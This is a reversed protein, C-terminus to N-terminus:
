NSKQAVSNTASNVLNTQIASNYKTLDIKGERDSLLYLAVARDVTTRIEPDLGDRYGPIYDLKDVEKTLIREKVKIQRPFYSFDQSNASSAVEGIKVLGSGGPGTMEKTRLRTMMYQQQTKAIAQRIEGPSCIAKVFVDAVSDGPNYMGQIYRSMWMNQIAPDNMYNEDGDCRLDKVRNVVYSKPVGSELREESFKLRSKDAMDLSRILSLTLRNDVPIGTHRGIERADRYEKNELKDINNKIQRFYDTFETRSDEQIARASDYDGRAFSDIKSNSMLVQNLTIEQNESNVEIKNSLYGALAIGSSIVLALGTIKLYKKLKALFKEERPTTADQFKAAVSYISTIEKKPNTTLMGYILGQLAGPVKKIAEKLRTEHDESTIRELNKGGSRIVVSFERGNIMVRRGKPDQELTYDFVNDGTVAEYLLAGLSYIETRETAGSQGGTLLANLLDPHACSTTGRSPISVEEIDRKYAATQWDTLVAGQGDQPILVNSSNLDRHLVGHNQTYIMADILPGFNRKISGLDQIPGTKKVLTRVSWGEIYDEANVTRGDDLQFSEAIRVINPHKLKGSILAEQLDMNRKSRFIMANTSHVQSDLRPIKLVVERELNGLIQTAYYADRMSGEGSSENIKRRLTYGRSRLMAKDEESIELTDILDPSTEDIVRPTTSKRTFCAKLKPDQNLSRIGQDHLWETLKWYNVELDETGPYPESPEDYIQEAQTLSAQTLLEQTDTIRPKVRREKIPM